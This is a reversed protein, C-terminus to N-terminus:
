PRKPRKAIRFMLYGVILGREAMGGLTVQGRLTGFGVSFGSGRCGTLQVAPRQKFKFTLGDLRAAGAPRRM